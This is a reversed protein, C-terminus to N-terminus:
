KGIARRRTLLEHMSKAMSTEKSHEVKDFERYGQITHYFLRVMKGAIEALVIIWPRGDTHAGGEPSPTLNISSNNV